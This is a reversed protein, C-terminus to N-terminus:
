RPVPLVASVTKGGPGIDVRVELALEQVLHWGLGGPERADFPRPQPPVPSADKVSVTVTGPGAALQFGAVGGGHRVANTVLEAVVLLVAEAEAGGEPLAVSLFGRTMNWTREPTEQRHGSLSEYDEEPSDM